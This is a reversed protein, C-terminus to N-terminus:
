YQSFNRTSEVKTISPLDNANAVYEINSWVHRLDAETKFARPIIEEISKKEDLLKVYEKMIVSLEEITVVLQPPLEGYQVAQPASSGGGREKKQPLNDGQNPTPTQLNAYRKKNHEYLYGIGFGALASVALTFAPKKLLEALFNDSSTM